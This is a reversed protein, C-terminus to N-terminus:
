KVRPWEGRVLQTKFSGHYTSHKSFRSNIWIKTYFFILIESNGLFEICNERLVIDEIGVDRLEKRVGNFSGKILHHEMAKMLSLGLHEEKPEINLFTMHIAFKCEYSKANSGTCYKIVKLLQYLKKRTGELTKEDM